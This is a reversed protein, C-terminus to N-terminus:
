TAVEWLALSVYVVASAGGIALSIIDATSYPRTRVVQSRWFAQALGALALAVIVVQLLLGREIAELGFSLLILWSFIPYGIRLLAIM